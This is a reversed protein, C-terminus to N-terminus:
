RMVVFSMERLSFDLRSRSLLHFRGTNTISSAPKCATIFSASSNTSCTENHKTTGTEPRAAPTSTAVPARRPVCRHWRGSRASPPWAGTKLIASCCLSKGAAPAPSRHPGAFAKLGRADAFRSRDDGIEALVRAGALMGLGPFSTIIQADPHQDFHAIAAEALEDAATAAAEFQRLLPSLQIGMANEVVPPQHLYTDTFVERLREVDRDLHRRRGAKVLLRRLRPPTLKAAQAPTPAATLITRADARALGGEPLGAFAVLAAPYFDKLLDDRVQNGVQQRAWVADQQARAWVRIAQALETDAPLPRHAGPDTRIINALLVADTADSKAGSAAYRARYRSAALPNIPYIVRGTERLAGVWLGRDTEIGVPIPHKATDGAEALLRLLAAFGAADNRVRRRAVVRGDDDVVAVDDHETAWDIGCFLGL